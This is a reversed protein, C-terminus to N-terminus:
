KKNTINFHFELWELRFELVDIFSENVPYNFRDCDKLQLKTKEIESKLYGILSQKKNNMIQQNSFSRYSQKQKESLIHNSLNTELLDNITDVDKSNMKTGM